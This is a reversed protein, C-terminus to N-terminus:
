GKVNVVNTNICSFDGVLELIRDSNDAAVIGGSELSVLEQHRLLDLFFTLVWSQDGRGGSVRGRPVKATDM